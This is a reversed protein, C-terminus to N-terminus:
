VRKAEGCGFFRFGRGIVLDNLWESCSRHQEWGSTHADTDIIMATPDENYRCLLTSSARVRSPNLVGDARSGERYRMAEQEREREREQIRARM